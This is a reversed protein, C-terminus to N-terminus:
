AVHQIQQVAMLIDITAQHGDILVTQQVSQLLAAMQVSHGSQGEIALLLWPAEREHVLPEEANLAAGIDQEVLDFEGGEEEELVNRTVLLNNAQM